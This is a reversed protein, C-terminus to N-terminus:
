MTLYAYWSIAALITAVVTAGLTGAIVLGKMHEDDQDWIVIWLAATLLTCFIPNWISM